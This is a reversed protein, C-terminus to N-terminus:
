PVVSSSTLCGRRLAVPTTPHSGSCRAPGGDHGRLLSEKTRRATAAYQWYAASMTPVRRQRARRPRTRPLEPPDPRTARTDPARRFRRGPECRPQQDNAHPRGRLRRVAGNGQEPDSRASCMGQGTNRHRVRRARRWAPCGLRRQLWRVARSRGVRSRTRAPQLRDRGAMGSRAARPTACARECRRHRRRQRNSRPRLVQCAAVGLGLVEKAAACSRRQLRQHRVLAPRRTLYM